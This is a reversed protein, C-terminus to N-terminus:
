KTFDITVAFQYPGVGGTTTSLARVYRRFKGKDLVLTQNQAATSFDTFAFGSVDAFSSNDASDQLKAGMTNGTTAQAILRAMGKGFCDKLDIGTGTVAAAYSGPPITVGATVNDIAINM